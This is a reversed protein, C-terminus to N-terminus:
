VFDLSFAKFSEKECLNEMGASFVVRWAKRGPCISVSASRSPLVKIHWPGAMCSDVVGSDVSFAQM